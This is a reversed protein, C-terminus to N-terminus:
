RELVFGWLMFLKKFFFFFILINIIIKKITGLVDAWCCCVFLCVFLCVSEFVQLEDDLEDFFRNRGILLTSRASCFRIGLSSCVVHISLLGFVSCYRM